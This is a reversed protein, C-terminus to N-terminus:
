VRSFGDPAVIANQIQLQAIPGIAAYVSGSITALALLSRLGMM